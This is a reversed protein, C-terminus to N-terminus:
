QVPHAALAIAVAYLNNAATEGTKKSWDHGENTDLYNPGPGPGKNWYTWAQPPITFGIDGLAGCIESIVHHAGDENGTVVVGAVKDYALPRGDEKTESIMGDLREIVKQAFSSPHGVWTPSAIILIESDLIQQHIEPWDDGDGLSESSVGPLINKDAVRITQVVVGKNELAKVVIDALAGTNSKEPSANLTCNLILAQM